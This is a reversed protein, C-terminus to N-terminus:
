LPTLFLETEPNILITAGTTIVDDFLLINKDAVLARNGQFVSRVNRFRRDAKLTAQRHRAGRHVLAGALYPIQIDKSLQRAMVECQNFGRTRLSTPSSPVAVMVEASHQLTRADLDSRLAAVFESTLARLPTYKMMGILIAIDGAYDWAYRLTTM